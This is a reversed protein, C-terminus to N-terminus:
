RRGPRRGGFSRGPGSDAQCGQRRRRRERRIDRGQQQINRGADATNLAIIADRRRCYEESLVADAGDPLPAGTTVRVTQGRNIKLQRSIGPVLNGLVKLRVPHRQMARSLDSAVVAYGDKRSSSVSPCDVRAVVDEALIRGTLQRLPLFETKGVSVNSLTLDLADKFGIFTQM